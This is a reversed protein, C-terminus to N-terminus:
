PKESGASMASYAFRVTNMEDLEAQECRRLQAAHASFQQEKLKELLSSEKHRATLEAREQALMARHATIEAETQLAGQRLKVVWHRALKLEDLDLEGDRLSVRMAETQEVVRRGFLAHRRELETIRRLRSAVARQQIAERHSRVRLLTEFRFTFTAGM